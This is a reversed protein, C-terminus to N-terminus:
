RCVAYGSESIKLMSEPAFIAITSPALKFGAFDLVGKSSLLFRDRIDILNVFSKGSKNHRLDSEVELQHIKRPHKSSNMMVIMEVGNYIRSFALFGGGHAGSTAHAARFILKGDSLPLCSKRIEILKRVHEAIPHDLTEYVQSNGLEGPGIRAFADIQTVESGLQWRGSAFMDQRSRAFQGSNSHSCIYNVEDAGLGILRRESPCKGNFGQEAGYYLVPVGVGSFLHGLGNYLQFDRTQGDAFRELESSEIFSWHSVATNNSLQQCYLDTCSENENDKGEFFLSKYSFPDLRGQQVGRVKRALGLSSISNLGPENWFPHHSYFRNLDKLAKKFGEPQNRPSEQIVDRTLGSMDAVYDMQKNLEGQLFGNVLFNAKGLRLAMERFGVSMRAIFEREVGELGVLRFGDIDAAAIWYKHLSVFIEQFKLYHSAVSFSHAGLDVWPLEFLSTAEAQKAKKTPRNGCRAFFRQHKFGPFFGSAFDIRRQGKVRVKNDLYNLTQSEVCLNFQLLTDSFEPQAYSSNGACVQDIIIDLVVRIGLKHAEATLERLTEMDGFNPDVKTPDELCRTRNEPDTQLVPSLNIVTIGLEKLYRLRDIVGRLDGGHRYHTLGRQDITQYKRQQESINAENNSFDGDSFRDVDIHYVVQRQWHKPSPMRDSTVAFAEISESTRNESWRLVDALGNPRSADPVAHGRPALSICALLTLCFWLDRRAPEGDKEILMRSFHLM